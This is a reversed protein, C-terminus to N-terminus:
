CHNAGAQAKIRNAYLLALDNLEKNVASHNGSEIHAMLERRLQYATERANEKQTATM